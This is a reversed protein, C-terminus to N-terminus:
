GVVRDPLAGGIVRSESAGVSSGSASPVSIECRSSSRSRSSRASIATIMTNTGSANKALSSNVSTACGRIACSGSPEDSIAVLTMEGNMVGKLSANKTASNM